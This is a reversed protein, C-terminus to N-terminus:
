ITQNWLFLNFSIFIWKVKALFYYNM